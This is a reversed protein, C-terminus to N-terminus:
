LRRWGMSEATLCSITAAISAASTLAADTSGAAMGAMTSSRGMSRGSPMRLKPWLLMSTTSLPPAPLRVLFVVASLSALVAVILVLQKLNM